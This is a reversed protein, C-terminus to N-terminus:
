WYHCFDIDTFWLDVIRDIKPEGLNPLRRENTNGLYLIQPVGGFAPRRLNLAYDPCYDWHQADHRVRCKFDGPGFIADDIVIVPNQATRARRPSWYTDERQVPDTDEFDSM